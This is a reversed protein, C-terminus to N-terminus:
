FSRSCRIRNCKSWIAHLYGSVVSFCNKNYTVYTSCFNLISISLNAVVIGELVGRVGGARHDAIRPRVGIRALLRRERRRPHPRGLEPRRHAADLTREAVAVQDAAADRHLLVRLGSRSPLATVHM